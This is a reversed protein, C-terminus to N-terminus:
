SRCRRATRPARQRPGAGAARRHVQRIEPDGTLPLRREEDQLVRVNPKETLVELADDDYDPAILVEVFQEAIAEAAARDM